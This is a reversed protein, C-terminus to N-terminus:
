KFLASDQTGWAPNVRHVQVSFGHHFDRRSVVADTGQPNDGLIDGIRAICAINQMRRKMGKVAADFAGL